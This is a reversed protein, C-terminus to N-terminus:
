LGAVVKQIYSDLWYVPDSHKALIARMPEDGWEEAAAVAADRIPLSDSALGARVLKVRWAATGVMGQRSLCRLVSSAFGPRQADLCIGGLFDLVQNTHGKNLAEAITTEAAHFICDELTEADFDRHLSAELEAFLGANAAALAPRPLDSVSQRGAVSAQLNGNIRTKGNPKTNYRPNMGGHGDRYAALQQQQRDAAGAASMLVSTKESRSFRKGARKHEALRSDMDSTYGIYVKKRGQFLAYTHSDRRKTM